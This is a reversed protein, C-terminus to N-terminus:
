QVPIDEDKEEVVQVEDLHSTSDEVPKVQSEVSATKEDDCPDDVFADTSSLCVPSTYIVPVSLSRHAPKDLSVTASQDYIRVGNELNSQESVM